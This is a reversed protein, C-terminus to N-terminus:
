QRGLGTVDSPVAIGEVGLAHCMRSRTYHAEAGYAIAKGPHLERAIFLAELNAITGSSQSARADRNASSVDSGTRPHTREGDREHTRGWRTRPQKPQAAHGGPEDIQTSPHSEVPGWQQAWGDVAKGLSQTLDTM